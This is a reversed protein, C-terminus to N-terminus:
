AIMSYGNDELLYQQKKLRSLISECHRCKDHPQWLSHEASANEIEQRELVQM